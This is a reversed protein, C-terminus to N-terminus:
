SAERITTRIPTGPETAWDGRGPTTPTACISRCRGAETGARVDAIAAGIAAIVANSKPATALHIVGPGPQDPGRATGVYEVANAAATAVAM